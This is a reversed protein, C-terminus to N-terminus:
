CSFSHMAILVLCKRIIAMCYCLPFELALVFQINRMYMVYFSTTCYVARLGDEHSIYHKLQCTDSM